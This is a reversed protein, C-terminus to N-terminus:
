KAVVELEVRRNQARGEETENSAIPEAEGRGEVEIRDSNVGATVLADKVARARAESLAQNELADGIDDTFGLLRIQVDPYAQMVGAIGDITQQSEPLLRNSDTDFVLDDFVFRRGAPEPTALYRRTADVVGGQRVVIIVGRPLEVTQDLPEAILAASDDGSAAIDSGQQCSRLGFILGVGVVGAVVWPLWRGSGSKPAPAVPDTASAAPASVGAAAWGPDFLGAIGPPLAEVIAPKASAVLQTIGSVTPAGSGAKAIAGMLLPSAIAAMERITGPQVSLLGSLANAVPETRAGMLVETTAAGQQMLASRATEDALLASVGELPNGGATASQVLAFLKEAGGAEVLKVAGALLAPIMAAMGREATVTELGLLASLQRMTDGSLSELVTDILNAM